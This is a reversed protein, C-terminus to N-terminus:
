KSVHWDTLRKQAPRGMKMLADLLAEGDVKRASECDAHVSALGVSFCRSGRGESRGRGSSKVGFLM